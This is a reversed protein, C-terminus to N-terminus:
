FDLSIYLGQATKKPHLFMFWLDYSDPTCFFPIITHNESPKENNNAPRKDPDGLITEKLFNRPGMDLPTRVFICVHVLFVSKTAFVHIKAANNAYWTRWILFNNCWCKLQCIAKELAWLSQLKYAKNKKMPMQHHVFLGLWWSPPIMRNGQELTWCRGPNSPNLLHAHNRKHARKQHHKVSIKGQLCLFGWLGM